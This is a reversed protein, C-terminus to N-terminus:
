RGLRQSGVYSYPAIKVHIFGFSVDKPGSDEDDDIEVQNLRNMSNSASKTDLSLASGGLSGAVRATVQAASEFFSMSMRAATSTHVPGPSPTERVRSDNSLFKETIRDTKYKGEVLRRMQERLNAVEKKLAAVTQTDDQKPANKIEEKLKKAETQSAELEKQLNSVQDDRKRIMGHLKEAEKVLSDKAEHAVVLQKKLETNEEQAGSGKTKFEHELKAYKEKWTHLQEELSTVHKSLEASEKKKADLAQSIEFLKNELKFNTEKLKGVSRAEVKLQKFEIRAKRRRWCNQAVTICRIDKKYEKRQKYMRWTAQIKSAARMRENYAFDRRSVFKRWARQIKVIARQTKAYKKRAIACKWNKQIKIAAANERLSKYLKRAAHGRWATQIKVASQRMKQYKKQHYSRIVNKQLFVVISTFKESRIKELYALQGARFFIKTKGLEYKNEGKISAQVIKQTVDKANGNWLSSHVLFYYRNVFEAYTQKSPYGARSIKITELVGCAVLQGLVNQPEFEFAVKSQNPKICRIYHPNTQRLTEM